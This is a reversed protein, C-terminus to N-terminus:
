RTVWSFVKVAGFVKSFQLMPELFRSVKTQLYFNLVHYIAALFFGAAIMMLIAAALFMFVLTITKLVQHQLLRGEAEALDFLGIITETLEKM